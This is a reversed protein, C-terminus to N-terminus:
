IEVSFYFTLHWVKSKQAGESFLLIFSENMLGPLFCKLAFALSGDNNAGFGSIIFFVMLKQLSFIWPGRKQNKGGQVGGPLCSAKRFACVFCVCVVCVFM